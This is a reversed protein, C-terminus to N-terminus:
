PNRHLATHNPEHVSPLVTYRVDTIRKAYSRSQARLGVNTLEDIDDM